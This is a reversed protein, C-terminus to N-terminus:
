YEQLFPNTDHEDKITTSPGHGPFVVTEPPLPLLKKRIGEILQDFNGGPLDTRGISGKFLVDGAILFADDPSYLVISGPSHGPVQFVQMSSKGFVVTDGECINKDAPPSQEAEFGYMRAFEINRELIFWDGENALLPINYKEAVFKNGFVHDTHCHTNIIKVPVLKKEDIFRVLEQKEKESYYGPDILICEGSEDYLVFSNVAFDNVVFLEHRIM